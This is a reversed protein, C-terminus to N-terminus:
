EDQESETEINKSKLGVITDTIIGTIACVFAGVVIIMWTPHWIHGIIGIFLYVLVCALILVGCIADSIIKLKTRNKM